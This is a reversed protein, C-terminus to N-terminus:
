GGVVGRLMFEIEAVSMALAIVAADAEFREAYVAFRMAMKDVESIEGLDYMDDILDLRAALLPREAVALAHTTRASQYNNWTTLAALELQRTLLDIQEEMLRIENWSVNRWMAQSLHGTLVALSANNRILRERLVDASNIEAAGPSPIQFDLGGGRRGLHRRRSQITERNLAIQRELNNLSVTLDDLNRQTTLGLEFRVNELELQRETLEHQRLLLDNHAITLIVGYYTMRYMLQELQEAEERQRSVANHDVPPAAALQALLREITAELTAIRAELNNGVPPPPAGNGNPEDAFVPTAFSLIMVACLFISIIKKM